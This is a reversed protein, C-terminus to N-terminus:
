SSTPWSRRRRRTSTPSTSRATSCRSSRRPDAATASRSSSSARSATSRRSARSATPGRGQVRPQRRAQPGQGEQPGRDDQRREQRRVGAHRQALGQGRGQGRRAGRPQRAVCRRAGGRHRGRSDGDGQPRPLVAPQRLVGAAPRDRREQAGPHLGRPCRHQAEEQGQRGQGGPGPRLDRRHDREGPLRGFRGHHHRVASKKGSRDPDSSGCAALSLGLAAAVAVGRDDQPHVNKEKPTPDHPRQRSPLVPASPGPTPPRRLHRRPRARPRRRRGLRGVMQPTTAARALGDIIYRGLGGLSPIFAAVTATAVVQLTASRLGGVILPLALPMEVKTLIQWETM